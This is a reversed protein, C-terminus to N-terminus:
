KGEAGEYHVWGSMRMQLVTFALIILFLVWALASAYGLKLFQFANQYLYLVYFLTANNPGGATMVFGQTFVQFSGIVGMILTFFITPTLLPLTIHRFKQWVSAGDVSAADYYSQPIGQLGALYIVMGGGIGWLSMIILSGLATKESGLWNVYGKVPDTLGLAHFLPTLHLTDILYNLLGSEPNFLRLWILSAAVTSAVAPLYYLTRFISQGRMKANLLLALGLSGAVGLPVSFLTYLATVRLGASFRDDSAMERFNDVGVWRAPSIIDWSSFALLLSVLIPGLLFIVAGLLWPSIFLYGARAEEASIAGRHGWQKRDTQAGRAVWFTIGGLAALMAILGIGWNLKPYAVPHNLLDLKAQAPPLFAAVAQEPTLTGNWVLELKPNIIATIEKWNKNMVDFHVYPVQEITLKRNKPRNGDLWLPSAALSALAPQALGTKALRGLGPKGALYKLLLWSERPHRTAATMGYGSWGVRVGHLGTPGKPFDAIDWDFRDGIEERFRPVEWIGTVYMAVRGQAFLDHVSVGSAQLETTSPAVNYKYQLDQTLQMARIIRPDKYFLKTPNLLDDVYEAGSSYVFNDMSVTPGSAYGFITPQSGSNGKKTLKQAVTLFDKNEREPHPAYDWSWSGDPYPMGAVDFLKKNYYVLGVPAIDRPLAYLKNDRSFLKVLQPYYSSLKVSPDQALFPTLDMLMGRGAFEVFNGGCFVVDPTLGAAQEILLKQAYEDGPPVREGRVRIHPHDHEFARITDQLAQIEKFDGWYRFRLVVDEPEDGAASRQSISFIALVTFFLLAIFRVVERSNPSRVEKHSYM